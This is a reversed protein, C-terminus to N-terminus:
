SPRIMASFRDTAIGSREKVTITPGLAHPLDVNSRVGARSSGGACPRTSSSPRAIPVRGAFVAALISPRSGCLETAGSPIM